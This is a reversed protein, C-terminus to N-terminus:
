LIIIFIIGIIICLAGGLGFKIRAYRRGRLNAVGAIKNRNYSHGKFVWNWNFGSSAAMFIGVAIIFVGFYTPNAKLFAGIQDFIDM